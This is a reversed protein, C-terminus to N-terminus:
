ESAVKLTVSAAEPDAVGTCRQVTEFRLEEPAGDHIFAAFMFHDMYDSPVNGGSWTIEVFGKRATRGYVSVPQPYEASRAQITWGAKVQPTVEVVGEPITITFSETPADGCGHYLWLTLTTYSGATASAPEVRIHADATTAVSFLALCALVSTLLRYPSPHNM